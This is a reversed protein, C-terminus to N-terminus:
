SGGGKKAEAERREDLRMERFIVARPDGGSSMCIDTYRNENRAAWQMMERETIVREGDTMARM